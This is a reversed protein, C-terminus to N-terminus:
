SQSQSKACKLRSVISSYMPRRDTCSSAYAAIAYADEDSATTASCTVPMGPNACQGLAQGDGSGQSGQTPWIGPVTPTRHIAAGRDIRRQDHDARKPPGGHGLRVALVWRPDNVNM